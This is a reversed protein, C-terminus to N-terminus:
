RRMLDIRGQQVVRGSQRAGERTFWSAMLRDGTHAAPDYYLMEDVWAHVDPHMVGGHNPIIWKGNAMETAIGEIGFDPHAKSRGTTFPKIPIASAHRAFQVIFDQAANNEVIVISQYRHHASEIRQVIEPGAWRGSEISLVHRNGQPDIAITFLVTQDAASHQQVALDVGTYTAYGPPIVKLGSAMARGEGQVLCRDVWERKFRATSDDRAECLMQRAFESPGLEERKAQIREPGWQEPWRPVGTEPHIVPYRYAGWGPQKAFRHLADDPHFATGICIVRGGDVLRGALTAHYWDWLDGRLLPSRTNEYDLIDDLIVRDLRAGLINGHVGAVQISPDKAGTKRAVSFAFDGWPKGPKLHPFIAQLTSTPQEIYHRVSRAIKVAQGKVNSVIAFRLNPNKGLEWVTRAIAVQQTKGSEIHSWLLLRDHQDALRHWQYHVESQRVLQGTSENKLVLHIFENVDVRALKIRLLRAAKAQRRRADLALIEQATPM